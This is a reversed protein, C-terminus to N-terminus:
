YDGEEDGEEVDYLLWKSLHLSEDDDKWIPPDRHGADSMVSFAIKEADAPNKLMQIVSTNIANLKCRDLVDAPIQDVPWQDLLQKVITIDIAAGSHCAYFLATNGFADKQSWDHAKDITWKQIADVDGRKAACWPDDDLTTDTEHIKERTDSGHSNEESVPSPMIRCDDEDENADEFVTTQSDCTVMDNNAEDDVSNVSSIIPDTVSCSVQDILLTSGIDWWKSGEECDEFASFGGLSRLSASAWSAAANAVADSDYSNKSVREEIQTTDKRRFLLSPVDLIRKFFGGFLGTQVNTDIPTDEKSTEAVQTEAKSLISGVSNLEKTLSTSSEGGMGSVASSIPQQLLFGRRQSRFYNKPPSPPPSWTATSFMSPNTLNSSQSSDSLVDIEKVDCLTTEMTSNDVSNANATPYLGGRMSLTGGLPNQDCSSVHRKPSIPTTSSKNLFYPLLQRQPTPTTSARLMQAAPLVVSPAPQLDPVSQEVLPLLVLDPPPPPPVKIQVEIDGKEQESNQVEHTAHGEELTTVTKLSAQNNEEIPPRDHIPEPLNEEQTSNIKESESETETIADEWGGSSVSTDDDLEVPPGEELNDETGLETDANNVMAMAERHDRCNEQCEQIYSPFLINWNDVVDSKEKDDRNDCFLVNPLVLEVVGQSEDQWCTDPSMVSISDDVEEKEDEVYIQVLPQLINYITSQSKPITNAPIINDDTSWDLEDQSSIYKSSEKKTLHKKPGSALLRGSGRNKIKTVM